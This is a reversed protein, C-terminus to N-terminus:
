APTQRLLPPATSSIACRSSRHTLAIKSSSPTAPSPLPDRGRTPDAVLHMPAKLIATGLIRATDVGFLPGLSWGTDDYPISRRIEPAWVSPRAARRRRRTPQDMRVVISGAAFTRAQPAQAEASKADDKRDGPSPSRRKSPSPAATQQTRLAPTASRSAAHGAPQAVPRRRYARIRRAADSPKLISRKSKLYYNDLFLKSNQAFYNLTTLLATEEYNNNNRQSWTM